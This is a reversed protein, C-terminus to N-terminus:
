FNINKKGSCSDGLFGANCTCTGTTTDCTGQNNCDQPCPIELIFIYILPTWM